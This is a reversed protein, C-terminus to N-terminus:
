PLDTLTPTATQFTTFSANRSTGSNGGDNLFESGFNSPESTGKATLTPTVNGNSSQPAYIDLFISVYLGMDYGSSRRGQCRLYIGADNEDDTCSFIKMLPADNWGYYSGSSYARRFIVHDQVVCTEASHHNWWRFEGTQHGTGSAHGTSWLITYKCLGARSYNYAGLRLEFYNYQSNGQPNQQSIHHWGMKQHNATDGTGNTWWIQRANHNGGPWTTSDRFDNNAGGNNGTRRM